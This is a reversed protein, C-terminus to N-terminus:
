KPQKTFNNKKASNRETGLKQIPEERVKSHSSILVKKRLIVFVTGFLNRLIKESCFEPALGVDLEGGINKVIVCCHVSLWSQVDM